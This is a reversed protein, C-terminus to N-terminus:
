NSIFEMGNWQMTPRLAIECMPEVTCGGSGCSDGRCRVVMVAVRAGTRAAARQQWHGYMHEEMMPPTHSDPLRPGTDKQKCQPRCCCWGVLSTLASECSLFEIGNMCVTNISSLFWRRVRLRARRQRERLMLLRLSPKSALCTRTGAFYGSAGEVAATHRDRRFTACVTKLSSPALATLM